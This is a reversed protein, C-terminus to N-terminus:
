RLSDSYKLIDANVALISDRSVKSREFYIEENFFETEDDEEVNEGNGYRRLARSKSSLYYYVLGAALTEYKASNFMPSTRKCIDHIELIEDLCSNQIDLIKLLSRLVDRITTLPANVVEGNVAQSYADNPWQALHRNANPRQALHRNIISEVEKTAKNVDKLKINLLNQYETKDFIIDNKKCIAIICCYIIGRRPANRKTKGGVAVTYLKSIELKTEDPLRLPLLEQLISPEKIKSTGTSTSYNNIAHSDDYLSDNAQFEDGIDNNM